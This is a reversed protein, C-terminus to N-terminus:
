KRTSRNKLYNKLNKKIIDFYYVTYRRHEIDKRSLSGSEEILSLIEARTNRDCQVDSSALSRELSVQARKKAKNLIVGTGAPAGDKTMVIVVRYLDPSIFGESLYKKELDDVSSLPIEDADPTNNKKNEKTCSLTLFMSLVFMLAIRSFSIRNM